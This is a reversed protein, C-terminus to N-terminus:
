QFFRVLVPHQCVTLFCMFPHEVDGILLSIYILVVIPMVECRDSHSDDFLRCVIFAPSSTSFLFGGASDTPISIPVVVM